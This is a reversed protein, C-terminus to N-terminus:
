ILSSWRCHGLTLYLVEGDGVKNIYYVPRPVDEDWQEEVFGTAKGTFRTDLLTHLNGHVRSLYLEDDTEFEDVGRVFLEVVLFELVEGVMLGERHDIEEHLGRFPFHRQPVRLRKAFRLADVDGVLLYQHFAEHYVIPILQAFPM